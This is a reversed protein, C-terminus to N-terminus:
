HPVPPDAVAEIPPADAEAPRRVDLFEGRATPPEAKVDGAAPADDVSPLAAPPADCELRFARILGKLEARKEKTILQDLFTADVTAELKPANSLAFEIARKRVKANPGDIATAAHGLIRLAYLRLHNNLMKDETHASASVGRYLDLARAYLPSQELDTEILNM